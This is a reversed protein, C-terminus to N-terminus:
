SFGGGEMRKRLRDLCRQRIFGISGPALGLEAAILQYPRPPEEFFLMHILQRCRPPLASLAERLFQEEEAQQLIREAVAPTAQGPLDQNESAPTLRGQQQRHHFCKHATVTMIWKTLAKADRLKPLESLIELCV